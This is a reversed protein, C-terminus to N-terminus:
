TLAALPAETLGDPAIAMPQPAILREFPVEGSRILAAKEPGLLADQQEQPWSAFVERGSPRVISDSVGALVPEATCECHPHVKLDGRQVINDAAALCAGCGGRTVRRWGIVR